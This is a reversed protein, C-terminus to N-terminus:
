IKELHFIKQDAHCVNKKVQALVPRAVLTANKVIDILEQNTIDMSVFVNDM